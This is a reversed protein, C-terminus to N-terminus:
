DSEENDDNNNLKTFYSIYNDHVLSAFKKNYVNVANLTKSVNERQEYLYNQREQNNPYSNLTKEVVCLNHPRNVIEKLGAIFTNVSGLTDEPTFYSNLSNSFVILPIIHDVEFEKKSKFCFVLLADYSTFVGSSNKYYFNSTKPHQKRLVSPTFINIGKEGEGGVVEETACGCQFTFTDSKEYEAEITHGCDLCSYEISNTKKKISTQFQFM